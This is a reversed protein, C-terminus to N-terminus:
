QLQQPTMNQKNKKFFIIAIIILLVITIFIVFVLIGIITSKNSKTETIKQKYVVVVKYDQTTGDEATVKYTVPNSFDQSAGSAPFVTANPSVVVSTKLNQLNTGDPVEVSIIYNKQNVQGIIEQGSLSIDFITVMKQSSKAVGGEEVATEETQSSEETEGSTTQLALELTYDFIKQDLSLSTGFDVKGDTAITSSISGLKKIYNNKEFNAVQRSFSDMSEAQGSLQVSSNRQDLAFRKFWIFPMTQQQMFAFANSAFKHNKFLTNFDNIKRIYGLVEKEQNKQDNTGVTQLSTTQDEIGKKVISIKVSFIIYCFVVAILVSVAFYLIVDLWWYKKARLKYIISFDM